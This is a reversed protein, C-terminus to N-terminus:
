HLGEDVGAGSGTRTMTMAMDMAMTRKLEMRTWSATVLSSLEVRGIQL